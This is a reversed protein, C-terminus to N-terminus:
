IKYGCFILHKDEDYYLAQPCVYCANKFSIEGEIVPCDLIVKRLPYMKIERSNELLKGKEEEVKKNYIWKKNQVGDILLEELKSLEFNRKHKSLDIEITSINLQKIKELKINDIGHTVKIEVILENGNVDLLIDPVIGGLKHEVKVDSIEINRSQYLVRHKGKVGTPLVVNPVRFTKKNKIIEKAALHLSTEIGYPCEIQNDHAFHHIKISGKKAVLAGKCMPCICNCKLGSEVESIHVIGGDKLAFQMKIM